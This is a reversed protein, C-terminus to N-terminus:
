AEEEVQKEEWSNCVAKENQLRLINMAMKYLKRRTCISNEKNLYCKGKINKFM